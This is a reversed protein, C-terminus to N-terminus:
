TENDLEVAIYTRRDLGSSAIYAQALKATRFHRAFRVNYVCFRRSVVYMGDRVNMIGWKM